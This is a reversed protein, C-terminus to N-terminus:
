DGHLLKRGATATAAGAAGTAAAPAPAQPQCGPVRAGSGAAFKATPGIIEAVTTENTLVQCPLKM